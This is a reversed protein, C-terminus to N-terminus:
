EALHDILALAEDSTWDVEGSIRAIEYGKRDYLISTPLGPLLLKSSLSYSGDHWSDLNIIDNDKFFMAAEAATRDLSVTVVKFKDGGKEAQLADLMPMEAICPACWTAWVNVLLTRGRYDAFNMAEGNLGSFTMIPQQPPNKLVTLKKLSDKAFLDLGTKPQSCSQIIVLLVAFLGGIIMVRIANSLTFFSSSSM